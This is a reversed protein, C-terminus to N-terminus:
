TWSKAVGHVSAWWAERGMSKELSSYQPPNGNGERPCGGARHPGSDGVNCVSQKSDSGGTFPPKYVSFM